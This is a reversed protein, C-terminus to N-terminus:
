EKHPDQVTCGDASYWSVESSDSSFKSSPSSSALSSKDRIPFCFSSAGLTYFDFRKKSLLYKKFRFFRSFFDQNNFTFTSNFTLFALFRSLFIKSAFFKVTSLLFSVSTITSLFALIWALLRSTFALRIALTDDLPTCFSVLFLMLLSSSVHSDIVFHM